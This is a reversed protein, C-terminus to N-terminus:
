PQSLLDQAPIDLTAALDGSAESFTMAIELDGTPV